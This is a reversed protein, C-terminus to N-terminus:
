VHKCWGRRDLATDSALKGHDKEAYVVDICNMGSTCAVDVLAQACMRCPSLTVLVIGNENCHIAQPRLALCMEAHFVRNTGALNRAVDHLRLGDDSVVLAAIDRHRRWLSEGDDRDCERSCEMVQRAWELWIRYRNNVSLSHLTKLDPQPPADEAFFPQRSEVSARECARIADATVDVYAVARTNDDDSSDGDQVIGMRGATLKVTARDLDSRETAFIRRRLAIDAGGDGDDHQLRERVGAVLRFTASSAVVGGEDDAGGAVAVYGGVSGPVHTDVFAVHRGHFRARLARALRRM